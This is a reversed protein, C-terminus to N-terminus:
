DEVVVTLCIQECEFEDDDYDTEDLYVEKVHKALDRVPVFCEKVSPVCTWKYGDKMSINYDFEDMRLVYFLENVTKKKSKAIVFHSNYLDELRKQFEVNTM